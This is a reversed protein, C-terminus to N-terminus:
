LTTFQLRFPTAAVATGKTKALRALEVNRRRGLHSLKMQQQQQKGVLPQAPKQRLQPKATSNYLFSLMKPLATSFASPCREVAYQLTKASSLPPAFRTTVSRPTSITSTSTSTSGKAAHIPDHSGGADGRSAMAIGLLADRFSYAPNAEGISALRAKFDIPTLPELAIGHMAIATYVESMPTIEDALIHVVEVVDTGTKSKSKTKREAGSAPSVNSTPPPPTPPLTPQGNSDISVVTTKSITYIAKVAWDIAALYFGKEPLHEGGEQRAHTRQARCKANMMVLGQIIRTVTDNLNCAGTKSHAAMTGLRYIKAKLGLLTVGHGVVQEAAGKSKAYTANCHTM